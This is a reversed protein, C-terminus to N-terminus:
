GYSDSNDAYPQDVSPPPPNCVTRGALEFGDMQELAMKADEARKYRVLVNPPALKRLLKSSM